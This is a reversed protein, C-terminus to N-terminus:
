LLSVNLFSVKFSKKKYIETDDYRENILRIEFPTKEMKVRLLGGLKELLHILESLTVSLSISVYGNKIFYVSSVVEDQNLILTKRSFNIIEFLKFYNKKFVKFQIHKLFYNSLLFEIEKEIFKYKEAYIYKKYINCDIVGLHTEISAQCPCTRVGNENDLAKEGFYRGDELSVVYDYKYLTVEMEDTIDLYNYMNLNIGERNSKLFMKRLEEPTYFKKPDIDVNLELKKHKPNQNFYKLKNKIHMQELGNRIEKRLNFKFIIGDLGFSDLDKMNIPFIEENSKITKFYLDTAGKDKLEKLFKYYDRSNM